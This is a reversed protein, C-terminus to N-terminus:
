HWKTTPPPGNKCPIAVEVDDQTIEPHGGRRPPLRTRNKATKGCALAVEVAPARTEPRRFTKEHRHMESDLLM